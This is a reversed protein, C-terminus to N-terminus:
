RTEFLGQYVQPAPEGSGTPRTPDFFEVTTARVLTSGRKPPTTARWQEKGPECQAAPTAASVSGAQATPAPRAAAPATTAASSAPAVAPPAPSCAAFPLGLVAILSGIVKLLRVDNAGKTVKHPS